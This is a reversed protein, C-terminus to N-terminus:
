VRYKLIEDSLYFLNNIDKNFEFVGVVANLNLLGYIHPFLIGSNKSNEWKIEPKVKDTDICVLLVQGSDSFISNAVDLVTEFTSCHIFGCSQMSFEGYYDKRANQEWSDKSTTHLIIM